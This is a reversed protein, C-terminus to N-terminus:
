TLVDGSAMARTLEYRIHPHRVRVRASTDALVLEGPHLSQM